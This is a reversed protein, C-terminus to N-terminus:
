YLIAKVLNILGSFMLFLSMETFFAFIGFFIVLAGGQTVKLYCCIDYITKNNSYVPGCLLKGSLNWKLNSKLVIRAILM